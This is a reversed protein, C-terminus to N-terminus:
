GTQSLQHSEPELCQTTPLEAAGAAILEVENQSNRQWHVAEAIASQLVTDSSPSVRASSLTNAPASQLINAVARIDRWPRTAELREAPNSMLGGRGSAVFQNSGNGSCSAIVQNDVNSFYTPLAVLGSDADLGANEIKVTGDIGLKSSATIDSQPTLRSRFQLGFIGRTIININGGRGDAANAVIDSNERGIIFPSQIAINGGDGAGLSTAQILSGDRTRLSDTTLSINGGQGSATIASIDGGNLITEQSRATLMGAEGTGLNAVSVAGGEDIQLRRATISVQGADGMPIQDAGLVQQYILSALVVGSSISSGRLDSLQDSIHVQGTATIEINGASGDTFSSTLISGGDRVTLQDTFITLNGANGNGVVTTASILSLEGTPTTGDVLIDSAVIEVNGGRGNAFATNSGVFGGETITLREADIILDNSQGSGVTYTGLRSFIGPAGDAYGSVVLDNSEVTVVGSAGLGFTRSGLSSGDVVVVQPSRVTIDGASGFETTDPPIPVFPVISSIISSTMAGLTLQGDLRLSDTATIVIDGGPFLGRNQALILSGDSLHIDKGALDIAGALGGILGSVDVLSRLDLDIDSFGNESIDNPVSPSLSFGTSTSVVDVEGQNLSLLEIRGGPATLMGGTSKIENGALALTEGPQVILGSPPQSAVYPSFLPHDAVAISHGPGQYTISQSQSGIQLGTPVSISLLSVASADVASFRYDGFSISEATSALFSGPLQLNASPGFIIGAPNIFFLDPRNGGLLQLTGNLLTQQQGTVRGVVTNIHNYTSDSLDFVVSWSEPSFTDFSHFLSDNRITGAEVSFQQQGSDIVLTSETTQDLTITQAKAVKSFFPSTLLLSIYILSWLLRKLIVIM